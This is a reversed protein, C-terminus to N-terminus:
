QTAGLLEWYPKPWNPGYVATVASLHEPTADAEIQDLYALFDQDGDARFSFMRAAGALERKLEPEAALKWVQKDVFMADCFPSYAAVMDIDNAMGSRPFNEPSRGARVERAVGVWFLASIRAFPIARAAASRFFEQVRVIATGFDPTVARLEGLLHSILSASEPPYLESLVVPIKGTEAAHLRAAHALYERWPAEVIAGLEGAFADHFDFGSAQQWRRCVEHLHSTRQANIRRHAEAIGPLQYDLEIRLREMWANREGTFVRDRDTMPEPPVDNLWGRFARLIQRHFIIEPGLFGVGHSLHRFVSRLKEYRADVVSETDQIPSHPCVILQLKSLRDLKEFVTRYFGGKIGKSAAPAHPDLEKMINSIVFQDVYIIKKDLAPLPFSQDLWCNICRRVYHRDCVMLVGFTDAKQCEPCVIFPPRVFEKVKPQRNRRPMM